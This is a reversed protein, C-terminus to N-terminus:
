FLYIMFPMLNIFYLIRRVHKKTLKFKMKTKFKLNLKSKVKM